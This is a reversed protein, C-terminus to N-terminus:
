RSNKSKIFISELISSSEHWTYKKIFENGSTAIRIREVPNTILYSIKNAINEANGVEALLVTETDIAYDRHGDIDTCVVACGCHMAEMPPLACGEQNSPGLFISSSNLLENLNNPAQHYKIWGPIDNPRDYVGFLNVELQQYRQKLISLANLGVETGKRPEVSYLMIINFPNRNKINKTINYKKNDIAFPVKHPSVGTTNLIYNYLYKAIVVNESGKVSYSSLVEKNHGLWNEIDQILNFRKGKSSSLKSIDFVLSWWTSFIVDGDKISYDNINNIVKIQIDPLFNFWNPINKQYYKYYLYKVFSPLRTKRYPIANPFYISVEHGFESLYNAYEFMVRLGGGPKVPVFPLIINIKLRNM